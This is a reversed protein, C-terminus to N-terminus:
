RYEYLNIASNEMNIGLNYIGVSHFISFLRLLSVKKIKEGWYHLFKEIFKGQLNHESHVCHM